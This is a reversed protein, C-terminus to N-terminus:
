SILQQLFHQHSIARSSCWMCCRDTKRSQPKKTQFRFSIMYNFKCMRRGGGKAARGGKGDIASQAAADEEAAAIKANYCFERARLGAELTGSVIADHIM